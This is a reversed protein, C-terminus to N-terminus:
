DGLPTLNELRLILLAKLLISGKTKCERKKGSLRKEGEGTTDRRRLKKHIKNPQGRIERRDFYTSVADSYDLRKWVTIPIPHSDDDSVM